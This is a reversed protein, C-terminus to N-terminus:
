CRVLQLAPGLRTQEAETDGGVAASLRPKSGTQVQLGGHCRRHGVPGQNQWLMGFLIKSGTGLKSGAQGPETAWPGGRGALTRTSRASRGADTDGQGLEGWSQESSTDETETWFGRASAGTHGRM